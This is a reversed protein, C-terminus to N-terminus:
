EGEDLFTALRTREAPSLTEGLWTVLESRVRFTRRAPNGAERFMREIQLGFISTQSVLIGNRDIHPNDARMVNTLLEAVAPPFVPVQRGDCCFILQEKTVAVVRRINLILGETEEVTCPPVFRAECLRGVHKAMSMM